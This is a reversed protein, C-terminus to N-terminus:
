MSTEEEEPTEEDEEQSEEQSEEPSEEEQSEEQSDEEEEEEPTEESSEEKTEKERTDPANLAFKRVSMENGSVNYGLKDLGGVYQVFREMGDSERAVGQLSYRITDRTKKNEDAHIQDRIMDHMREQNNDEDLDGEWSLVLDLFSERLTSYMDSVNKSLTDVEVQQEKGIFYLSRYQEVVESYQQKVETFRTMHKKFENVFRDNLDSTEDGKSISTGYWFLYKMRLQIIQQKVEEFMERYKVLLNQISEYKGNFIEIDLSCLGCKVTYTNNKLQFKVNSEAKGCNPCKSQKSEEYKRKLRFYTNLAYEYKESPSLESLM